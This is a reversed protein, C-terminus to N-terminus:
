RRTPTIATVHQTENNTVAAFAWFRLDEGEPSIVLRVRDYGTLEPRNWLSFEAYGPEYVAERSSPLAHYAFPVLYEAVLADPQSPTM